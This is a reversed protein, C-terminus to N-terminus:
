VIKNALSFFQFVRFQLHLKYCFPSYPKKLDEM